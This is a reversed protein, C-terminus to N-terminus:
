LPAKKTAKNAGGKKRKGATYQVLRLADVWGDM